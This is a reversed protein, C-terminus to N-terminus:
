IKNGKQWSKLKLKTLHDNEMKREETLQKKFVAFKKDFPMNGNYLCGYIAVEVFGIALGTPNGWNNIM